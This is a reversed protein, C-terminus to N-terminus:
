SLHVHPSTIVAMKLRGTGLEALYANRMHGGPQSKLGPRRVTVGVLVVGQWRYLGVATSIVEVKSVGMAVVCVCVCVCVCVSLCM